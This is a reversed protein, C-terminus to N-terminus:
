TEWEIGLETELSFHSGLRAVTVPAWRFALSILVASNAELSFDSGLTVVIM